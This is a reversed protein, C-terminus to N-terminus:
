GHGCSMSLRAPDVGMGAMVREYTRSMDNNFLISESAPCTLWGNEAIENELQGPQWGSYGLMMLKRRPGNGKMIARLIDVTATLCVDESVPMTSGVMFDDSHIVFGRSKDVPGGNRVPFGRAAEPLRIIEEERAVGLQLLIDKFIVPQSQNIVFGMAGDDSHACIYIVARAFREDGMGPMAVLFHDNLFGKGTGKDRLDKLNMPLLTALFRSIPLLFGAQAGAFALIDPM